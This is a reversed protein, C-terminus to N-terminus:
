RENKSNGRKVQRKGKPTITLQGPAVEVILRKSLLIQIDKDFDSKPKQNAAKKSM